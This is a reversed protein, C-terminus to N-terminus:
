ESCKGCRSGETRHASQYSRSCIHRFDSYSCEVSVIVCSAIPVLDSHIEPVGSIYSRNRLCILSAVAKHASQLCGSEYSGFYWIAILVPAYIKVIKRHYTIRLCYLTDFRDLKCTPRRESCRELIASINDAYVKIIACFRCSAFLSFDQKSLDIGIPWRDNCAIHVRHM